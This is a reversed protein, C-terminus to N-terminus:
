PTVPFFSVGISTGFTPHSFAEYMLNVKVSENKPFERGGDGLTMAPFDLAISGNENKMIVNFTVTTNNRIADLVASDTFLAQGEVNVLFVGTNLFSAGLVGLCKEPSVQNNLTITLSQFCTNSSTMVDTGINYIHTATSFPSTLLPSVPTSGNTARTVSPVSSTTGIFNFSLTAKESLPLNFSLENAFNGKAYEYKPVGVGGLDQFTAEFQYSREVYRNDDVNAATAVNRVFRGFLLDVTDGTGPDTVLTGTVKDLTLTLASITLIRAYGVGASFQETITLGGVHIFQGATLGLTTFDIRDAGAVGNNGATLTATTGTVVIALDGIKARIGALDVQANAFASPTEVVAGAFAILVGAAATDATLVKLGNNAANVYGQGYVLSKPGTSVFQLKAAQSATAAPITYGGSAVPLARFSLNANVAEAFSFSEIFGAFITHTLDHEFEVGSNVDVLTGKQRQRSQSIPERSVSSVEAGFNGITDPETLFWTPSGPLVGVTSELAYALTTNNTLVRSM